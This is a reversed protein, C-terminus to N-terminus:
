VAGVEDIGGDEAGAADVAFDFDVARGFVARAVDVADVERGVQGVVGREDAFGAAHGRGDRLDDVLEDVELKRVAVFVAKEADGEAASFLFRKVASRMLPAIMALMTSRALASAMLRAMALACSSPILM